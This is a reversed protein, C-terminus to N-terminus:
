HIDSKKQIKKQNETLFGPVKHISFGGAFNDQGTKSNVNRKRRLLRRQNRYKSKYKQAASILHQNNLWCCGKLKNIGVYNIGFRDLINTLASSGKNWQFVAAATAAELRRKGYFVKKPMKGYCMTIECVLKHTEWWRQYDASARKHEMSKCQFCVKSRVEYDLVKGTEIAVM